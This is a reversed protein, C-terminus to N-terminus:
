ARVGHARGCYADPRWGFATGCRADCRARGWLETRDDIFTKDRVADLSTPIAAAAYKFVVVDTWKELLKELAKETGRTGCRKVENPGYPYLEELKELM